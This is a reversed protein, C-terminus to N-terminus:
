ESAIRSKGDNSIVRVPVNEATSFPRAPALHLTCTPGGRPLPAVLDNAPAAVATLEATQAVM